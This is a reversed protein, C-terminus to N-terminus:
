LRYDIILDVKIRLTTETPYGIQPKKFDYM